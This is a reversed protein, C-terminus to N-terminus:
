LSSHTQSSPQFADTSSIFNLFASSGNPCDLIQKITLPIGQESVLIQNQQVVLSPCFFPHSRSTERCCRHCLLSAEQHQFRQHYAAFDGHGTRAQVLKLLDGRSWHLEPSPKSTPLSSTIFRYSDARATTSGTAETWKKRWDQDREERIKRRCYAKTPYLSSLNPSKAAGEKALSDAKENGSIETHGPM